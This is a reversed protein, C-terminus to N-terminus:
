LQGGYLFIAIGFVIILSSLLGRKTLREGLFMWSAIPMLVFTIANMAVVTKLMIAQLSFVILVTVLGFMFVATMTIINLNGKTSGLKLLVHSGVTLLIAALLALYNPLDSM